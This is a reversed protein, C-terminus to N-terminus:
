RLVEEVEGERALIAARQGRETTPGAVRRLAANRTDKHLSEFKWEKAFVRLLRLITRM